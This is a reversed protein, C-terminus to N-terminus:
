PRRRPKPLIRTVPFVTISARSAIAWVAGLQLKRAEVPLLLPHDQGGHVTAFVPAVARISRAPSGPAAPNTV